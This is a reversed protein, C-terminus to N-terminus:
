PKKVKPSPSSSSPKKANPDFTSTAYFRPDSEPQDFHKHPSPDLSQHHLYAVVREGIVSRVTKGRAHSSSVRWAYKDPNPVNKKGDTLLAADNPITDTYPITMTYDQSKGGPQTQKGSITVTM